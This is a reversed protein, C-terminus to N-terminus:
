KKKLSFYHGFEPIIYEIGLNYILFLKGFVVLHSFLDKEINIIYKFVM